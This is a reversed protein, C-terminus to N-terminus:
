SFLFLVRRYFPDLLTDGVTHAEPIKWPLGQGETALESLLTDQKGKM